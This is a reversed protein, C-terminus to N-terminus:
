RIAADRADCSHRCDLQSLRKLRAPIPPPGPRLPTPPALGSDHIIAAVIAAPGTMM